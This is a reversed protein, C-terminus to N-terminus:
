VHHKRALNVNVTTDVGDLQVILRAMGCMSLMMAPSSHCQKISMGYTVLPLCLDACIQLTEVVVFMKM